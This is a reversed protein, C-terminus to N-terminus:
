SSEQRLADEYQRRDFTFGPLTDYRWHGARSQPGRHPQRFDSWTVTASGVAIRVLLPRCGPEECDCQLVPVAEPEWDWGAAPEGLLHRSPLFAVMAPIGLYAGALTAHGERLAFPLEVDRILDVLRRGNIRIAVLRTTAASSGAAVDTVLQIIDM